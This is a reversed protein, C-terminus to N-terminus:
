GSINNLEQRLRDVGWRKDVKVGFSELEDTLQEKEDEDDDTSLSIDDTDSDSETDSKNSNTAVLSGNEILAKVFPIEAVSDPVETTPNDGPLVKYKENQSVNITILRASVNKLIM